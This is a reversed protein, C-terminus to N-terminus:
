VPATILRQSTGRLTLYTELVNTLERKHVTMTKLHSVAVLIVGRGPSRRNRRPDRTGGERPLRMHRRGESRYCQPIVSTKKIKNKNIIKIISAWPDTQSVFM